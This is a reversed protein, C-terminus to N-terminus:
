ASEEWPAVGSMLERLRPNDAPPADLIATFKAVARAISCEEFARSAANMYQKRQRKRRENTVLWSARNAALITDMHAARISREVRKLLQRFEANAERTHPRTLAWADRLAHVARLNPGPWNDPQKKQHSSTM